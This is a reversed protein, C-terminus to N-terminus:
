VRMIGSRLGATRGAGVVAAAQGVAIAAEGFGVTILDLKGPYRVVDGAALVRERSTRMCRDVQLFGGEITLGWEALPGLDPVYGLAAVVAQAPLTRRGGPGAVAVREVGTEGDIAVVEYPTLVTVGSHLLREIGQERARFDNRRHVITTTAALPELALAWDVASDGGGVVVVDRGALEDLDPVAYYLGQNEHEPGVPLRRPRYPGTGSTVLMADARVREGTSLTLEVADPDEAVAVADRGLLYHPNGGAAQALLADVLERGRVAPLGAVNDLVKEPFFASVQGGPEPLADVLITRLGRSGACAAAYLGAPTAGIILLDTELAGAGDSPPPTTHPADPM